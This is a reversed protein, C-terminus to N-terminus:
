TPQLKTRPHTSRIICSFTPGCTIWPRASSRARKILIICFPHLQLLLRRVESYSKYESRDLSQKLELLTHPAPLNGKFDAFPLENIMQMIHESRKELDQLM